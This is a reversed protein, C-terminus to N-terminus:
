EGDIYLKIKRLVAEFAFVSLAFIIAWWFWIQEAIIFNGTRLLWTVGFSIILPVYVRYGKLVYKKDLKKILETLAVVLLVALPIFTPLLNSLNNM